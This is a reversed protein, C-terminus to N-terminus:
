YNMKLHMNVDNVRSGHVHEYISLVQIKPHLSEMAYTHEIHMNYHM